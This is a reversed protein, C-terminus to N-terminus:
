PNPFSATLTFSSAGSATVVLAHTGAAVPASVSLPSAGSRSALVTGDARRVSLTLSKSKAFTVSADLTGAGTPAAYTASTVKRTTSGSWTTTTTTPATTAPGPDTSAGPEARELFSSSATNWHGALYSGAPPNTHFYDDDGCDFLREHEYACGYTLVTSQSDTYCMRDQEDTCHGAATSHPASAQVGGITHMLEHAEVTNHFGWCGSDVRAYLPGTESLNATGARDDRWFQAIGCYRTDDVWTVYKRDTRTLGASELEAITNSFSDDGTAAMRVVTVSLKCAADTVWRVHRVGGTKAASDVFIQDVAGAWGAILDVVDAARNPVDEAYAYVAQIRRGSTGDGYCPVSSSSASRSGENVGAVLEETTPRRTVDVGAPAPDPGHTCADREDGVVRFSGACAGTDERVLGAWYLGRARDPTPVGQAEATTTRVSACGLAAVVIALPLSVRRRAAHPM